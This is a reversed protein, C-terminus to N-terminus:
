AQRSFRQAPRDSVWGQESGDCGYHVARYSSGYISMCHIADRGRRTRAALNASRRSGPHTPRMSGGRLPNQFRTRLSGTVEGMARGGSVWRRRVSHGGDVEAVAGWYTPLPRASRSRNRGRGRCGRGTWAATTPM